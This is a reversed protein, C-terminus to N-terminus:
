YLQRFDVVWTRPIFFVSTTEKVGRLFNAHLPKHNNSAWFSVMYFIVCFFKVPYQWGECWSQKYTSRKNYQINNTGHLNYFSSINLAACISTVITYFQFVSIQTTTKVFSFWFQPFKSFSTSRRTGNHRGLSFFNLPLFPNPFRFRQFIIHTKFPLICLNLPRLSLTQYIHLHQPADCCRFCCGCQLFLSDASPLQLVCTDIIGFPLFLPRLLIHYM